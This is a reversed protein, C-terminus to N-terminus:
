PIPNLKKINRTASQPNVAHSGEIARIASKTHTNLFNM